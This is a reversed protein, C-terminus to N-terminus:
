MLREMVLHLPLKRYRQYKRSGSYSLRFYITNWKPLEQSCWEFIDTIIRMSPQASLYLHGQCCIREFYRKSLEQYKVWIPVRNKQWAVYLGLLIFGTSNITMSTSVDEFM